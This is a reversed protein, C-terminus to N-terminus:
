RIEQLALREEEASLPDGAHIASLYADLTETSSVPAYGRAANGAAMAFDVRWAGDVRCAVGLMTAGTGPALEFERCLAGTADRFSVIPRLTRGQGLARAEGAPLTSLAQAVEQAGVPGLAVATGGRPAQTSGALYGGIGIAVAAVSAALAWGAAPAAVRPRPPMARLPTVTGRAAESAEILARVCGELEAPAPEAALDAYADRIATRMRRLQELRDAVSADRGAAEEIRRADAADLENDVYAMLMEDSVPEQTM